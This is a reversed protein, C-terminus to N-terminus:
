SISRYGGYNMNSIWKAAIGAFLAPQNCFLDFDLTFFWFVAGRARDM